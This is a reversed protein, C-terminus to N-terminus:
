NTPKVTDKVLTSIKHLKGEQDEHEVPERHEARLVYEPNYIYSVVWFLWEVVLVLIQLVIRFCLRLIPM